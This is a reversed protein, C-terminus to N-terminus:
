AGLRPHFDLAIAAFRRQVLRGGYLRQDPEGVQHRIGAVADGRDVDIREQDIRSGADRDIAQDHEVVGGGALRRLMSSMDAYGVTEAAAEHNSVRSSASRVM